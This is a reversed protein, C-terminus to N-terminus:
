GGLAWAFLRQGKSRVAKAATRIHKAPGASRGQMDNKYAKIVEPDDTVQYGARSSVVVEGRKGAYEKVDQMISRVKSRTKEDNDKLDFAVNLWITNYWKGNGKAERLFHAIEEVKEVRWVKKSM